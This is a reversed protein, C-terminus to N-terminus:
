KLVAGAMFFPGSCSTRSGCPNFLTRLGAGTLIVNEVELHASDMAGAVYFSNLEFVSVARLRSGVKSLSSDAACSKRSGACDFHM